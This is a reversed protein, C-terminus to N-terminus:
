DHPIDTIKDPDIGRMILRTRNMALLNGQGRQLQELEDPSYHSEDAQQQIMKEMFALEAKTSKDQM